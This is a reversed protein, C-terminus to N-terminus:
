RGEGISKSCVACEVCEMAAWGEGLGRVRYDHGDADESRSVILRTPHDLELDRRLTLEGGRPQQRRCIVSEWCSWEAPSM